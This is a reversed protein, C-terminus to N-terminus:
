GNTESASLWARAACALIDSTSRAWIRRWLTLAPSSFPPLPQSILTVLIKLANPKEVDNPTLFDPPSFGGLVGSAVHKHGVSLLFSTCQRQIVNSDVGEIITYLLEM